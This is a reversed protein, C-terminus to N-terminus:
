SSALLFLIEKGANIFRLGSLLKNNNKTQPVQFDLSFSTNRRGLDNITAISKTLKLAFDDVDTLDLEGLQNNQDNYIFIQLDRM